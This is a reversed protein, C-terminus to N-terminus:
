RAPSGFINFIPMNRLVPCNELSTGGSRSDTIAPKDILDVRIPANELPCFSWVMRPSIPTRGLRHISAAVLSTLIVIDGGYNPRFVPRWKAAEATVTGFPTNIIERPSFFVSIVFISSV